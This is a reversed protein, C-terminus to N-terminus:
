PNGRQRAVNSRGSLSFSSLDDMSVLSARIKKKLMHLKKNFFEIALPSAIYDNKIHTQVADAHATFIGDPQIWLRYIYDEFRLGTSFIPALRASEHYGAVGLRNALKEEDRHPSLQRACVCAQTTCTPMISEDNLYM